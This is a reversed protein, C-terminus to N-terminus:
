EWVRFPEPKLGVSECLATAEAFHACLTKASHSDSSLVVRGGKQAIRRLLPLAPYPRSRYGRSIAGTNVEFPRGTELLADLASFAADLYRPSEEDFLANKENYKTILDFHGILDAHTRAIVDASEDLAELQRDMLTAIGREGLELMGVFEKVKDPDIAKRSETDNRPPNANECPNSALIGEKM